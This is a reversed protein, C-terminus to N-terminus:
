FKSGGRVDLEFSRLSLSNDATEATKVALYRGMRSFSSVWDTAGETHTSGNTYVPDADSTTAAGHYVACSQGATGSFMWRSASIAFKEGGQSPRIGRRERYANIATGFDTSGTNALGLQPTSTAIVLRATNTAFEDQDWSTVDSSWASSDDSWKGGSIASSVMGAAAWTVNPLSYITWTDDKWNWVAARNCDSSGTQPFCVWVQNRQPCTTLFSRQANTPDISSTLWNSIRGTAISRADAGTHVMVDQGTFFVHGVPTSVVCGPALLGDKGPLPVFRFVDNGGIYQMLYRGEKGYIINWPGLSLCDVLTGAETLDQAGADNMVGAAFTTPLSGPEAANSWIVRYPKITGGSPTYGLGVLYYSYPRLVKVLDGATWGSIGAFKTAPDGNWYMPANVGNNLVPVGNLVGGTWRDDRGGTPASVPTVDTRTSGDDVFVTATSAQILYRTTGNATFHELFYPVATPTTYVSQFGRRVFGLGNAFEINLVDSWMGPPLESPMVDKNVGQGCNTVQVLM